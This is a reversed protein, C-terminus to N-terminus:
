VNEVYKTNAVPGAFSLMLTHCMIVCVMTGFRIGQICKLKRADPNKNISKLRYWNKPLSFAAMIKGCKTGTIREYEEKTKYRASGEYITAITIFIMYSAFFSKVSVVNWIHNQKELQLPQLEFTFKCYLGDERLLMCEDYDDLHFLPPMSAYDKDLPFITINCTNHM